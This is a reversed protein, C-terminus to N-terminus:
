GQSNDSRTPDQQSRSNSQRMRTAADAAVRERAMQARNAVLDQQSRSNSQRMRTAADAAARERAMQARNAVLDLRTKAQSATNDRRQIEYLRQQQALTSLDICFGANIIM